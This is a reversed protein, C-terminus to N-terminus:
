TFLFIIDNYYTYLSLYLEERQKYVPNNTLNNTQVHVCRNKLKKTQQLFAISSM